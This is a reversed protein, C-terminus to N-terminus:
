VCGSGCWLWGACFVNLWKQNSLYIVIKQKTRKEERSFNRGLHSSQRVCRPKLPESNDDSMLHSSELQNEIFWTAVIKTNWCLTPYIFSSFSIFDILFVFKSHFYRLLYWLMTIISILKCRTCAHYSDRFMSNGSFISFKMLLIRNETM